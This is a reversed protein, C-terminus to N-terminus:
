IGCIITFRIKGNELKETKDVAVDRFWGSSEVGYVFDIAQVDTLSGQPYVVGELVLVRGYVARKILRMEKETGTARINKIDHMIEDVSILKIASGEEGEEGEEPEKEVEIEEIQPIYKTTMSELYVYSPILNSIVKMFQSIDPATIRIEDFDVQREIFETNVKDFKTKAILYEARNQNLTTLKDQLNNYNFETSKLDGMATVHMYVMLAIVSLAVPAIIKKAENLKVLTKQEPPLVNQSREDDLAVALAPLIVPGLKNLEDQKNRPLEDYPQIKIQPNGVEIEVGLNESLFDPLRKMLASGGILVLKQFERGGRNRRYFDLSRTIEASIREAVPRMLIAIRMTSPDGEPPLGHDKKYQEAQEETLDEGKPGLGLGQLVNTFDDGGTSITRSLVVRDIELITITTKAAGIDVIAVAGKDLELGKYDRVLFRVSTPAATIHVPLIGVQDLVELKEELQRQDVALVEVEQRGSVKPDWGRDNIICNDIPFPLDKKIQFKIANTLEKQSVEPLDVNRVQSYRDSLILYLETGKLRKAPLMERLMKQTFLNLNTTTKRATTPIFKEEFDVLFLGDPKKITELLKITSTGIDLVFITKGKKKLFSLLPKKKGDDVEESEGNDEASVQITKKGFLKSLTQKLGKSKEVLQFEAESKEGAVQTKPIIIDKEPKESVVEEVSLGKRRKVARSLKLLLKKHLPLLSEPLEYETIEDETEEKKLSLGPDPALDTKKFLPQDKPFISPAARSEDVELLTTHPRRELVEEVAKEIGNASIVTPDASKKSDEDQGPPTGGRRIIELLRNTALDRQPEEM